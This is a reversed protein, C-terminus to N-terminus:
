REVVVKGTVIGDATNLYVFYIGAPQNNLNITNQTNNLVSQYVKNGLVDYVEVPVDSQGGTLKVTFRGSTPNPFLSLKGESSAIPSIGATVTPIGDVEILDAFPTAGDAGSGFSYLATEANGSLSFKFITGKSNTGGAQTMGYLLGNSAKILSGQPMSGDNGGAFSYLVVEQETNYNFGFITGLGNAGGNQTMAYLTGSGGDLFSGYPAQADNGNGFAYLFTDTLLSDSYYFGFISGKNYNGGYRSMGYLWGNGAQILSGYPNQSDTDNSGFSYLVTDTYPEVLNYDIITGPGGADGGRLTLGYLLSDRVNLLSGYPQEGDHITGLTYVIAETNTYRNYSFITGGGNAGGSESMGYLKGDFAAEILSGHPTQADTGSGFDHIDAYAGTGINYTFITGLNNAGGTTTLGYLLGNSALLLSGTPYTGDTGAGFSHLVTETGATADYKFITGKSSDGGNQTMGYFVPSQAGCISTILFIALASFLYKKM